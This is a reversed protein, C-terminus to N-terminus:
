CGTQMACYAPLNVLREAAKNSIGGHKSSVVMPLRMQRLILLAGCLPEQACGVIQGM